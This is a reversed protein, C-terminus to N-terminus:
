VASWQQGAGKDMAKQHAEAAVAVDQLATGTSDFVIVEDENERGPRLGAIVQGLEAHVDSASILGADVAHHTEGVAVAQATIDTVLKARAVLRPDLEQKAPSDAGVAAIFIGARVHCSEIFYKHSSTCTICIQSSALAFALDRTPMAVVGFEEEVEDAFAMARHLTRSWVHVHEIPFGGLLARLQARAQKGTGCVTCVRSDLIALHRAAIATAAATRQVTIEGSDMIAMPTGTKASALLILGQISPLGFREGNHFFGGNVKIAFLPEDSVLGGAKIHFEGDLADVHALVSTLSRGEGHLRFAEEVAQMYDPFSLLSQIDKRTLLLL